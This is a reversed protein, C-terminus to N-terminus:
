DDTMLPNRGAGIVAGKWASARGTFYESRQDSPWEGSIVSGFGANRLTELTLMGGGSEKGGYNCLWHVITKAILDTELNVSDGVGLKGLTTRNLTTPILAVTFTNAKPDASAVTLSVGDVTISGKPVVFQMLSFDATMTVRCEEESDQRQTITATGDVHGQVFHGGMPTAPTLSPELNVRDGITLRGLNSKDLTERIVDFTLMGAPSGARPAHTLCVGNVSISEGDVPQRDWDGPDIVLCVGFRNTTIEAVRGMIQVIGTFM